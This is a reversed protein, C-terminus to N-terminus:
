PVPRWDITTGYYQRGCPRVGHAAGSVADAACVPVGRGLAAPQVHVGHYIVDHALRSALVASVCLCNKSSAWSREFSRSPDTRDRPRARRHTEAASVAPDPAVVEGGAPRHLDSPGRLGVVFPRGGSRVAGIPRARALDTRTRAAPRPSYRGRWSSPRSLSGPCHATACGSLGRSSRESLRSRRSRSRRTRRSTRTTNAPSSGTRRRSTTRPPRGPSALIAYYDKFKM